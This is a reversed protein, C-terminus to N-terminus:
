QRSVEPRDHKHYDRTWEVWGMAVAVQYAAGIAGVIIVSSFMLLGVLIATAPEIGYLGFSLVLIGERVGINGVTLPLLRSIFLFMIVWFFATVPVMVDVARAAFFISLIALGFVILSLLTTVLFGSRRMTRLERVATVLGQVGSRLPSPMKRSTALMLEDVFLGSTRHLTLVTATLVVVAIAAAVVSIETEPFPNNWALAVSGIVLPPVALAIKSFMMASLVGARDGTAASLNAWKAAGAFMDGPLILSVLTAQAKALLVRGIGIELGTSKMLFRLLAANVLISAIAALYVAIMWSWRTELFAIRLADWGAVRFLLGLILVALTVRLVLSFRSKRGQIM